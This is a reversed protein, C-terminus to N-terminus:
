SGGYEGAAGELAKEEMERFAAVVEPEGPCGTMRECRRELAAQVGSRQRLLAANGRVTPVPELVSAAAPPTFLQEILDVAFLAAFDSFDVPRSAGLAGRAGLMTELNGLRQRMKPIAAVLAPNGTMHTQWIGLLIASYVDESALCFVESAKASERATAPTYGLLMAVHYTIAKSQGLQMTGGSGDPGEYVPLYNCIGMAGPPLANYEAESGIIEDTFPRGSDFLMYRLIQGRGQCAFYRLTIQEPQDMTSCVRRGAFRSIAAGCRRLALHRPSGLMCGLHVATM